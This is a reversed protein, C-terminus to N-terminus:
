TASAELKTPSALVALCALRSAMAASGNNRREAAERAVAHVSMGFHQFTV